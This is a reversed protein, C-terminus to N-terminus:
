SGDTDQEGSGAYSIGTVKLETYSQRHGTRRRYRVKSKYKFVVVKKGRGHGVVEATVSAGEVTPSGLMVEGDRSIMRVDGIEVQGGDSEDIAEVRITDGEAVRYQKGGSQVVAYTSMAEGQRENYRPGNVYCLRIQDPYSNLSRTVHGANGTPPALAGM